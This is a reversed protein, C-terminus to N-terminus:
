CRRLAFPPENGLPIPTTSFHVTGPFYPYPQQGDAYRNCGAANAVTVFVNKEADEGTAAPKNDSHGKVAERAPGRRKVLLTRSVPRTSARDVNWWRWSARQESAAPIWARIRLMASRSCRPSFTSLVLFNSRITSSVCGV